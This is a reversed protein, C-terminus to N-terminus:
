AMPAVFVVRRLEESYKALYLLLFTSISILQILASPCTKYISPTHIRACIYM